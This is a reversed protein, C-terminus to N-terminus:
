PSPHQDSHTDARLNLTARLVQWWSRRIVSGNASLQTLNSITVRATNASKFLSNQVASTQAKQHTTHQEVRIHCATLTKRKSSQQGDTLQYSSSYRLIQYSSPPLFIVSNKRKTAGYKGVEM